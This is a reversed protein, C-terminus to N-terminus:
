KVGLKACSIDIRRPDMVLIMGGYTGGGAYEQAARFDEYFCSEKGDQFKVKAFITFWQDWARYKPIGLDNTVVKKATSGAPAAYFKIIQKPADHAGFRQYLARLNSETLGALLPNSKLTWSDPLSRSEIEARKSDATTQNIRAQRNAEMQEQDAKIKAFDTQKFDLSLRGQIRMWKEAPERNGRFDVTQRVIEIGVLYNKPEARDKLFSYLAFAGAKEDEYNQINYYIRTTAKAPEPLVDFNWYTKDLDAETFRVNPGNIIARVVAKGEKDGEPSPESPDYAYLNFIVKNFPNETTVPTFGFAERLTKGGTELRGYIYDGTTFSTKSGDNTAGFPQNSFYIKSVTSPKVQLMKEQASTNSKNSNNPSSNESNSNEQNTKPQEQKPKEIKPIKPINIPFQAPATQMSVTCILWLTFTIIINKKM